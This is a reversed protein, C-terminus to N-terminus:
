QAARELFPLELSVLARFSAALYRELEETTGSACTEAVRLLPIRRSRPVEDRSAWPVPLEGTEASPYFLEVIPEAGGEYAISVTRPGKHFRVYTERGISEVEPDLFGFRETLHTFASRCAVEFEPHASNM